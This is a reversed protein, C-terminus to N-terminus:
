SSRKFLSELAQVGRGYLGSRNHITLRTNTRFSKTWKAKYESEGRMFNFEKLGQRQCDRIIELLLLKSPFFEAFEPRFAMNWAYFVGQSVFGFMYAILTEQFRLWYSRFRKQALNHQLVGRLFNRSDEGTYLSERELEHQREIHMPSAEAMLRDVDWEPDVLIDWPGAKTIRNRALNTSRRVFKKSMGEWVDAWPRSLDLYYYRGDARAVRAKYNRLGNELAAVAPNGEVLDDLICLEWRLASSFLWALAANVVAEMDESGALVTSFDTHTSALFRIRRYPLLGRRREDRYMLPFIGRVSEGERALLVFPRWDGRLHRCWASVARFELQFSPAFARAALDQWPGELNAPPEEFFVPELLLM